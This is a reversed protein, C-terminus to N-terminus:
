KDIHIFDPQETSNDLIWDYMINTKSGITEISYHKEVYIRGRAGMKKLDSSPMNTVEQLVQKLSEIDNDVWWGCSFKILDSWPTGKSAIVPTGVSLAEAVVIGFNESYSPLILVDGSRIFDWKEDGFKAGVFRINALDKSKVLDKLKDVYQEEGDGAILLEWSKDISRWSKILNELGKKPHIRSIFVIRKLGYKKDKSTIVSFDIGNPILAISGKYGLNRINQLEEKSTVHVLSANKYDKKQYLFLAVKKKLRNRNLIWPELMGRPTLIYPINYWRALVIFFHLFPHWAGQIHILNVDRFSKKLLFLNFLERVQFLKITFDDTQNYGIPNITKLSFISVCYDNLRSVYFGAQPVSRSPGGANKDISAVVNVIHPKM